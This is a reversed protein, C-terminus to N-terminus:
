ILRNIILPRQRAHVPVEIHAVHFVVEEIAVPHERIREPIPILSLELSPLRVTPPPVFFLMRWKYVM